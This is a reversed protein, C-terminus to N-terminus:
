SPNGGLWLKAPQRAALVPLHTAILASGGGELHEELLTDLLTSGETDLAASPEDLLWLPRHPSLLLRALALRQRQGQSLRRTEVNPRKGLAVRELVQRLQARTPRTGDLGALLELNDIASLEGKLGHAHGLWLAHACLRGSGPAFRDDQWQIQGAQVPTLGLLARLLTSKGSGNPGRLMLASGASVSFDLGDVLVQQGREIRIGTVQMM